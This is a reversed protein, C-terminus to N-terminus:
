DRKMAKMWRSHANDEGAIAGKMFALKAIERVTKQIANGLERDPLHLFPARRLLDDACEAAAADLENENEFVKM